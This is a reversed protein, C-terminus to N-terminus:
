DLLQPILCLISFIYICTSCGSAKYKKQIVLFQSKNEIAAKWPTVKLEM